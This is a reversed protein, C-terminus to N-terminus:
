DSPLLELPYEPLEGRRDDLLSIDPAEWSHQPLKPAQPRQGEWKGFCREIEKGFRAGTGYKDTTPEHERMLIKIEDLSLGKHALRWVNSHTDASRDISSGGSPKAAESAREPKPSSAPAERDHLAVQEEIFDDLLPLEKDAGKMDIGTVTIYRATNRYFEVGGGNPKSFRRHIPADRECRGIIRLGRGSPTVEIYAGQAANILDNAWETINSIEESEDDYRCCDDLDVVALDAGLLQFGLGDAEEDQWCRLASDYSGWTSPDDNRALRRPDRPQLPPKTWEGDKDRRVFSWNVWRPEKTVKRLQRPLRALDAQQPRPPEADNSSTNVGADEKAIRTM